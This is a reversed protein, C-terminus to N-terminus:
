AYNIKSFSGTSVAQNTTRMFTVSSGKEIDPAVIIYGSGNYKLILDTDKFNLYSAKINFTGTSDKIYNYTTNTVGITFQNATENCDTTLTWEANEGAGKLFKGNHLNRFVYGANGQMVLWQQKIDTKDITSSVKLKAADNTTLALNAGINKFHYVEGVEFSSMQAWSTSSLMLLVAVFLHTFIRKM